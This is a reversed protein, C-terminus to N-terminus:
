VIPENFIYRLVTVENGDRDNLRETRFYEPHILYVAATLDYVSCVAEHRSRSMERYRDLMTKLLGKQSNEFLNLDCLPNHCTDLTACAHPYKVCEAFAQTDLGHNFEYGNYNPPESINGAMMVLPLEGYHKLIDLTVTCPGLSLLIYSSDLEDLWKEYAIVSATESYEEPLVDGMGDNGHIEPIHEEPQSFSSTDVIRINNLRKGSHTLIRKANVFTSKLPFNGGISVIDIRNFRDAYELLYLTAIADDLGYDCLMALSKKDSM